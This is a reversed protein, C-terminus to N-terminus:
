KEHLKRNILSIEHQIDSTYSNGFVDEHEQQPYKDKELLYHKLRLYPYIPFDHNVWTDKYGVFGYRHLLIDVGEIIMTLFQNLDYISDEVVVRESDTIFADSVSEIKVRINCSDVLNIRWHYGSPEAHWLVSDKRYFKDTKSLNLIDILCNLLDGLADSLYSVSFYITKGDKEWYVDAWGIATLEYTFKM